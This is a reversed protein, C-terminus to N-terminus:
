VNTTKKKPKDERTGAENWTSCQKMSADCASKAEIKSGPHFQQRKQNEFM